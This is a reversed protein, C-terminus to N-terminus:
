EFEREADKECYRKIDDNTSHEAGVMILANIVTSEEILEGTEKVYNVAAENAKRVFAAKIRYTKSNGM